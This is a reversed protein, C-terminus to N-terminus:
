PSEAVIGFDFSDVVLLFGRKTQGCGVGVLVFFSFSYFLGLPVVNHDAAGKGSHDLCIRFLSTFNRKLALEDVTDVLGVAFLSKDGLDVNIIQQHQTTGLLPEPNKGRKGYPRWLAFHVSPRRPIANLSPRIKAAVLF